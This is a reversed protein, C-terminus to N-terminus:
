GADRTASSLLQHHTRETTAWHRSRLSPVAVHQWKGGKKVRTLMQLQLQLEAWEGESQSNIVEGLILVRIKWIRGRGLRAFGLKGADLAGKKKISESSM